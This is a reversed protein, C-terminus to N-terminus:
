ISKPKGAPAPLWGFGMKILSHKLSSKEPNLNKPSIYEAFVERRHPVRGTRVAVARISEAIDQWEATGVSLSGTNLKEANELHDAISRITKFDGNGVAVLM